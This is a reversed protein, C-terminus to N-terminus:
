DKYFTTKTASIAQDFKTLQIKENKKPKYKEIKKQGLDWKIAQKVTLVERTPRLLNKLAFLKQANLFHKSM